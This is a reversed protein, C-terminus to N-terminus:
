THPTVYVLQHLKIHFLLHYDVSISEKTLPSPVFASLRATPGFHHCDRLHVPSVAPFLDSAPFLEPSLDASPTPRSQLRTPSLDKSADKVASNKQSQSDQGSIM